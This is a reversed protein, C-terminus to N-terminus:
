AMNKRRWAAVGALLATLLLLSGQSLTPVPQVAPQPLVEFRVWDFDWDREGGLALRIDVHQTATLTIGPSNNGAAVSQGPHITDGAVIPHPDAGAPAGDIRYEFFALAVSPNYFDLTVTGPANSDFLVYPANQGVRGPVQKAFNLANTSNPEWAGHPLPAGTDQAAATAAWGLALACAIGIAFLTRLIARAPHSQNLASLAVNM